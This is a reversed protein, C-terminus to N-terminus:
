SRKFYSYIADDAELASLGVRILYSRLARHLHSNYAMGSMDKSAMIGKVYRIGWRVCATNIAM